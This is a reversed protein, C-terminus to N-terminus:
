FGSRAPFDFHCQLTFEAAFPRVIAVDDAVGVIRAPAAPIGIQLAHSRNHRSDLLVDTHTGCADAGAADLFGGSGAVKLKGKTSPRNESREM